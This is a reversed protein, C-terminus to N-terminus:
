KKGRGVLAMVDRPKDSPVNTNVPETQKLTFTGCEDFNSNFINQTGYEVFVEGFEPHDNRVKRTADLNYNLDYKAANGLWTNYAMSWNKFTTGKSRHFNIFKDLQYAGDKTVAYGKLKQKYLETLNEYQTTRKLSFSFENKQKASARPIETTTETTTETNNSNKSYDLNSKSGDMLEKEDSIYAEKLLEDLADYHVTYYTVRMMNTRKSVVGKQKLIKFANAFQKKSIGLEETWSDGENYLNNDCPEIFKYFEEYNNKSGWYIFQQLALSAIISGTVRNLEKRYPISHHDSALIETAVSKM